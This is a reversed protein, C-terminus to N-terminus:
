LLFLDITISENKQFMFKMEKFDPPGFKPKANNSFGIPEKPKGLWSKDLKHNNNVDHFMSIGYEGSPLDQVNLIVETSDVETKFVKFAENSNKYDGERWIRTFLTGKTETINTVIISLNKGQDQAYLCRNTGSILLLLSFWVTLFISKIKKM